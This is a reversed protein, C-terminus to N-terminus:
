VLLKNTTKKEVNNEERLLYLRLAEYLAIAGNESLIFGTVAIKDKINNHTTRPKDADEKDFINMEVVIGNKGKIKGVFIRSNHTKVRVGNPYKFIKKIPNSM